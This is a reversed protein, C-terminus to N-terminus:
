WAGHATGDSSAQYVTMAKIPKWLVSADMYAVNGGVAGIQISTPADAKPNTASPLSIAPAVAGGSATHPAMAMVSATPSTTWYNADAILENTVASGGFMKLPFAWSDPGKPTTEIYGALYSYGIIHGYQNTLPMNGYSFNPCYLVSGNGGLDNAVFNTFIEDSLQISHYYGFNDKPDPLFDDNEFAYHMLGMYVQRLNSQCVARRSKEKATSLAPLLLASLIGTMAIVVGLEVLTFGADGRHGMNKCGHPM